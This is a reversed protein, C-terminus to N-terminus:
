AVIFLGIVRILGKITVIREIIFLRAILGEVIRLLAEEELRISLISTESRIRLGLIGLKSTNVLLSLLLSLLM